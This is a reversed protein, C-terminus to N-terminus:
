GGSSSSGTGSTSGCHKFGYQTALADAQSNSLAQADARAARLNGTKAVTSLARLRVMAADQAGLYQQLLKQDGSPQKLSRIQSVVQQAVPVVKDLYGSLVALARAPPLGSTQPRGLARLQTSGQECIVDAQKIYNAKTPAGSSGCAALLATAAVTASLSLSRRPNLNM